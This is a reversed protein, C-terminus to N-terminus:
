FSVFYLVLAQLNLFFCVYSIFVFRVLYSLGEKTIKNTSVAIVTAWLGKPRESCIGTWYQGVNQPGHATDIESVSIAPWM